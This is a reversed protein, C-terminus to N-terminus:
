FLPHTTLPGRRLLYLLSFQFPHGCPLCPRGIMSVPPWPGETEVTQPENENEVPAFHIITMNVFTYTVRVNEYNAEELGTKYETWCRCAEKTRDAALHYAYDM